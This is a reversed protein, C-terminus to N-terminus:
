QLDDKTEELGEVKRDNLEKLLKETSDDSVNKSQIDTEAIPNDKYGLLNKALFIAVPVSTKSMKFLNRRLSIKGKESKKKYVLCFDERYTRKCWRYLTKTSCGFFSAIEDETCNMQCLAEFEKQDIEIMPRGMKVKTKSSNNSNSM